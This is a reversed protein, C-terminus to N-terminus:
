IEKWYVVYVYIHEAQKPYQGEGLLTHSGEFHNVTVCPM